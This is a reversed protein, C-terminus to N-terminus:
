NTAQGQKQQVIMDFLAKTDTPTLRLPIEARRGDQPFDVALSLLLGGDNIPKAQFSAVDIYNGPRLSSVPITNDQTGSIQSLAQVLTGVHKRAIIIESKNGADNSFVLKVVKGDGSIGPVFETAVLEM